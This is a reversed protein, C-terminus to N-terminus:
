WMRSWKEDQLLKQWMVIKHMQLRQSNQNVRKRTFTKYSSWDTKRFLMFGGEQSVLIVLSTYIHMMRKAAIQKLKKLLCCANVRRFSFLFIQWKPSSCPLLAQLTLMLLDFYMSRQWRNWTLSFNINWEYSFDVLFKELFTLSM